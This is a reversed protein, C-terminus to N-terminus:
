SGDDFYADVDWIGGCHDDHVPLAEAKRLEVLKAAADPTWLLMRWVNGRGPTVRARIERALEEPLNDISPYAYRAVSTRRLNPTGNAPM